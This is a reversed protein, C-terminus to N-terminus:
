TQGAATDGNVGQLLEQLKERGFLEVPRSNAYDLAARSFGTSTIVATRSINRAKADDLVSRIKPEDVPEPSRYFRILRPIKRTNRWKASDNEVATFECGEGITKSGQVSLDMKREALTKCLETFEGQGCTLYDKMNDDTRLEQYRALKEGVDRFNKKREYIKEWQAIAKDVNRTKECCLGLFYRAYLSDSSDEDTIAGVARELDPIAREPANLAMFCGGREVLARIRFRADRAAKEFSAVAGQYNKVDKQIKGLYFHIQPNDEQYKLATELAARAEKAKKDRYLMVGLEYHIKGDRPALSAAKKLYNEAMDGRNRGAFLKGAEYYYDAHNPLLKILLLYEKLAEEKQNYRIFLQGLLERFPIEPINKGSIGAQNVARFEMLALEDRNELHYAMGLWYHAEANKPERATIAKAARIVAQTKGRKIFAELAEVRRPAATSRVLFVVLFAVGVGLVIIVALSITM